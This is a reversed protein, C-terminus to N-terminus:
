WIMFMAESDPSRVTLCTIYHIPLSYAIYAQVCHLLLMLNIWKSTLSESELYATYGNANANVIWPIRKWNLTTITLFNLFTIWLGPDLM